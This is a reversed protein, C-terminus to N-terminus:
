AQGSTRNGDEALDEILAATDVLYRAVLFHERV